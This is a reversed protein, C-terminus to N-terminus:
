GGYVTPMKDKKSTIVSLTARKQNYVSLWWNKNVDDNESIAIFAAVGYVMVRLAKEPLDLTDSLNEIGEFEENQKVIQWLECYVDDIIDVAKTLIRRHLQENGNADTYGLRRLAKNLMEHATM